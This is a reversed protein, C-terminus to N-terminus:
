AGARKLKREEKLVRKNSMEYMEIVFKKFTLENKYLIAWLLQLVQEYVFYFYRIKMDKSKSKIRAEDQVRFGTEIRWRGKYTPIIHDLNFENQDTAFAWDFTKGNKPDLIRKLFALTTEGHFVTKDKNVTFEYNIKKRESESMEALEKKVKENKPVFILYPHNANALALMLEKSYFGRDYLVLKISGVLPEVLSLCFCVEKAMNHGLHIPISILPIKEPIHSSVLACTLFKFKGTIAKEGTWGHMWFGEVKGYFNEDTYDFALIVDEELLGFKSSVIRVSRLYQQYFNSAPVAKIALHLSDARSGVTEIYTNAMAAKLLDRNYEFASLSSGKPSLGLGRNVFTDLTRITRFLRDDIQNM